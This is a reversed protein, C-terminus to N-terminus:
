FHYTLGANLGLIYPYSVVPTNKNISTLSGQMAPELYLGIQNSIKYSIGVGISYSYYVTQLGQITSINSTGENQWYDQWNMVTQSGTSVNIAAGITIFANVKNTTFAFYKLQVPIGLYSRTSTASMKLSDGINANVYYPCDITGSSSVVSYGIQGDTQKQAYLVSPAIQFKFSQYALGAGISIHSTVKYELNVGSSYSFQQKEGTKIASEDLNNSSKFSYGTLLDPSFYVSMSFGSQNSAAISDASSTKKLSDAVIIPRTQSVYPQKTVSSNDPSKILTQAIVPSSSNVDNKSIEPEPASQKNVSPITTKENTLSGALNENAARNPKSYIFQKNNSIAATKPIDMNKATLKSLHIKTSSTPNKVIDYGSSNQKEQVTSNGSIKSESKAVTKNEVMAINANPNGASKAKIVKPNTDNIGNEVRFTFYGLLLLGAGLLFAIARWRSTNKNTANTANQIISEASKRWFDDSPETNLPEIGKRFIEDIKSETQKESM